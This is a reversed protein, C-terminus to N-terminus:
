FTNLKPAEAASTSRFHADDFEPYAFEMMCFNAADMLWETNHTEEYKALRAKINELFDIGKKRSDAVRGYKHRSTLMRNRMGQVFVESFEKEDLGPGAM